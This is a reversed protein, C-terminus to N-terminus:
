REASPNPKTSVQAPMHRQAHPIAKGHRVVNGTHTHPVAYPTSKYPCRWRVDATATGISAVGIAGLAFLSIILNSKMQDSGRNSRRLRDIAIDSEFRCVMACINGRHDVNQHFLEQGCAQMIPDRAHGTVGRNRSRLTQKGHKHRRTGPCLSPFSWDM